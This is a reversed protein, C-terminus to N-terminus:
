RRPRFPNETTNLASLDFCDGRIRIGLMANTEQFMLYLNTTRTSVEIQWQAFGGPPVNTVIFDYGLSPTGRCFGLMGGRTSRSIEICDLRLANTDLLSISMFSGGPVNNGAWWAMAVYRMGHASPMSYIETQYLTHEFIELWSPVWPALEKRALAGVLAAVAGQEVSNSAPKYTVIQELMPAVNSGIVSLGYLGATRKEEATAFHIPLWRQKRTWLISKTIWPPEQARLLRALSPVAANGSKQIYFALNTGKPPYWAWQSYQRAWKTVTQGDVIPEKNPWLALIGLLALVSLLTGWLLKRRRFNPILLGM